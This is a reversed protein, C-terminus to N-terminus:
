WWSVKTSVKTTASRRGEDVSLVWVSIAHRASLLLVVLKSERRPLIIAQYHCPNRNSQPCHSCNERYGSSSNTMKYLRSMCMQMEISGTEHYRIVVASMTRLMV